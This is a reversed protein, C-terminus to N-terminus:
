KEKDSITTIAKIAETIHNLEKNRELILDNMQKELMQFNETDRKFKLAWDEKSRELEKRKMEIQAPISSIDKEIQLKKNTLEDIISYRSQSDAMDLEEMKIDEQQSDFLQRKLDEFESLFM